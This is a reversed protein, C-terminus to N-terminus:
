SYWIISETCPTSARASAMDDDAASSVDSVSAKSKPASSANQQQKRKQHNLMWAEKAIERKQQRETITAERQLIPMLFRLAYFFESFRLHLCLVQLESLTMMWKRDEEGRYLDEDFEDEFESSESDHAVPAVVPKARKKLPGTAV